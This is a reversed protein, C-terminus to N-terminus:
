FLRVITHQKTSINGTKVSRYNIVGPVLKLQSFEHVSTESLHVQQCYNATSSIRNCPCQHTYRSFGPKQLLRRKGKQKVNQREVTIFDSDGVPISGM